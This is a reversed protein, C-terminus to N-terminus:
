LQDGKIYKKLVDKQIENIEVEGNIYKKALNLVDDSPKDTGLLSIGLASKVNEKREDKTTESVLFKRNM